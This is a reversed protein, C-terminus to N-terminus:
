ITLINNIVLWMGHKRMWCGVQMPLSDIVSQLYLQEQKSQKSADILDKAQMLANTVHQKENQAMALLLAAYRQWTLLAFLLALVLLSISNVTFLNLATLFLCCVASTLLLMALAAFALLGKLSQTFQQNSQSM